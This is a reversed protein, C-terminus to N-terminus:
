YDITAKIAGAFAKGEETNAGQFLGFIFDRVLVTDRGARGTLDGTVGNHTASGTLETGAISAIVDLDDATATLMGTAFNVEVTIPGELTAVDYTTVGDTRAINETSLIRYSGSM